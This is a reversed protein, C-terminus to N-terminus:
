CHLFSFFEVPKTLQAFVFQAGFCRTQTLREKPEVEFQREAFDVGHLTNALLLFRQRSNLGDRALAGFTLLLLSQM